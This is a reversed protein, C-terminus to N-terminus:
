LNSSKIYNNYLKTIEPLNNEYNPEEDITYFDLKILKNEKLELKCHSRVFEKYKSKNQFILKKSIMFFYIVAYKVTAFEGIMFEADLANFVEFGNNKFIQPYNNEKPFNSTKNFQTTILNKIHELKNFNFYGQNYNKFAWVEDYDNNIILFDNIKKLLNIQLKHIYVLLENGRVVDIENVRQPIELLARLDNELERDTPTNIGKSM